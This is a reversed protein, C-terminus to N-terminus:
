YGVVNSKLHITFQDWEGAANSAENDLIINGQSEQCESTVM